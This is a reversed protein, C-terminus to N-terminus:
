QCVVYEKPTGALFRRFDTVERIKRKGLKELGRPFTADYISAFAKILSAESVQVTTCSMPAIECVFKDGTSRIIERKMRALVAAGRRLFTKSFGSGNSRWTGARAARNAEMALRLIVRRTYVFPKLLEADSIGVCEGPVGTDACVEPSIPVTISQGLFNWVGYLGSPTLFDSEPLVFGSSGPAFTEPPIAGGTISLISNLSPHQLPVELAHDSTNLTSFFLNQNGGVLVRCPPQSSRVLRSAEINVPNREALKSGTELIPEFALAELGTTISHRGDISLSATVEGNTDTTQTQADIVLPAGAIPTEEILLRFTIV